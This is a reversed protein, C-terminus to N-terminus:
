TATDPMGLQRKPPYGSSGPFAERKGCVCLGAPFLWDLCRHPMLCTVPDPSGAGIRVTIVTILTLDQIKCKKRFMIRGHILEDLLWRLRTVTPSLCSLRLM